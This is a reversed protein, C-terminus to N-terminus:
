FTELCLCTPPLSDAEEFPLARSAMGLVLESSGIPGQAVTEM